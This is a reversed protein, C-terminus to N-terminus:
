NIELKGAVTANNIAGSSIVEDNNPYPDKSL